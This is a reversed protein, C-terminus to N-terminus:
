PAKADSPLLQYVAKDVGLFLRRDVGAALASVGRDFRAFRSIEGTSGALRWVSGEHVAFYIEVRGDGDLDAQAVQAELDSSCM